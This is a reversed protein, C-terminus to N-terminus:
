KKSLIIFIIWVLLSVSLDGFSEAPIYGNMGGLSVCIWGVYNYGLM